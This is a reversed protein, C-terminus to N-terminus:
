KEFKIQYEPKIKINKGELWSLDLVWERKSRKKYLDFARQIHANVEMLSWNNVRMLQEKCQDKYGRLASFGFHKVRHCIPCLSILGELKQVGKHDDYSWIEHCEVKHGKGFVGQGGCIECRHDAKAYSEKRLKDWSASTLLKRLNNMWSSSPVLEITLNKKEKM